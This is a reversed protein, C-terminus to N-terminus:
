KCEVEMPYLNNENNEIIDEEEKNSIRVLYDADYVVQDEGVIWAQQCVRCKYLSLWWRTPGYDKLKELRSFFKESEECGMHVVDSDKLLLCACAQAFLGEMREKLKIKAEAIDNSSSIRM